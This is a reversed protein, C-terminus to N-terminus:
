SSHAVPSRTEAPMVTAPAHNSLFIQVISEFLVWIRVDPMIGIPLVFLKHITDQQTYYQQQICYENNYMVNCTRSLIQLDPQPKCRKLCTIPTEKSSSVERM